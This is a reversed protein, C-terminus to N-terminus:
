MSLPTGASSSFMVGGGRSRPGGPRWLQPSHRDLSQTQPVRDLCGSSLCPLRVEGPGASPCDRRLLPLEWAAAPPNGKGAPCPAPHCAFPQRGGGRAASAAPHAGRHQALAQGRSRSGARFATDSPQELLTVWRGTFGLFCPRGTLEPPLCLLTPFIASERGSLPPGPRPAQHINRRGTGDLGRRGPCPPLAAGLLLMMPNALGTYEPLAPRPLIQWPCPKPTCPCHPSPPIVLQHNSQQDSIPERWPSLRWAGGGQGQSLHCLRSPHVRGPLLRSLLGSPQHHIPPPAAFGPRAM